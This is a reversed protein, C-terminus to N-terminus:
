EIWLKPFCVDFRSFRVHKSLSFELTQKILDENQALGLSSLLRLQEEPIKSSLYLNLVKDYNSDDALVAIRFISGRINPNVSDNNNLYEDFKQKAFDLVKQDKNIGLSMLAGGRLNSTLPMENEQPEYGTMELSKHGLKSLVENLDKNDILNSFAFLKDIILYLVSPNNEDMCYKNIFEILDSLKFLTSETLKFLDHLLGFRSKTSISLYNQGIKELFENSYFSLYYGLYDENIFVFKKSSLKLDYNMSDIVEKQIKGDANIVAPIKWEQNELIGSSFFRKQHLEIKDGKQKVEILPLGTQSIFSSMVETIPKQSVKEVTEWLDKGEANGYQFKNVYERLGDRFVDEGLFGELMRLISGGKDYTIEDFIEDIESVDKIDVQIPHSASLSDLKMGQIVTDSLYMAWVDWEKWFHDMAKYAMFTAFSENLWLDNWWKMTVLNGFWQHALEHAVVEAIYAKRNIPTTGPYFLIATERFTIAGWNEMAGAAFDPIGILDVKPLPYKVGFYEEFYSLVKKACEIAFLTYQKKGPTTVGRILIDNYYDEEFEFEGVGLYILYTSMLPTRTFKILKQDGIEADEYPLTNSIATLKSDILFSIEFTAKYDPHDVCPFAKRADASEFQSTALFHDQGDKEYKAKYWGGLGENIKGKFSISLSYEQQALLKEQFNIILKSDEVLFSAVTDDGILQCKEVNIDKCDLVIQDSEEKLEFEIIEDGTFDFTSLDPEFHLKYNKPTPYM